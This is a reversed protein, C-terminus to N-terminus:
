KNYYFYKLFKNLHDDDIKSKLLPGRTPYTFHHTACPGPIGPVNGRWRSDTIGVHMVARAHWSQQSATENTTPPPSFTGPMGACACGAIKHIQWSAWPKADLLCHAMDRVLLPAYLLWLAGICDHLISGRYSGIGNLFLKWKVYMINTM